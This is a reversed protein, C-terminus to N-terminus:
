KKLGAHFKSNLQGNQFSATINSGTPNKWIYGVATIGNADMRHTEEGKGLIKEVEAISMGTKIQEYKALTIEETKPSAVPTSATTSSGTSTSSTSSTSCASVFAIASLLGVMLFLKM